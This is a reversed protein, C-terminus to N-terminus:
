VSSNKYSERAWSRAEDSSAWKIAQALIRRFNANQYAAPGDGLQLYVVPSNQYTKIWGVLNSGNPHDWDQNSNLEGRVVANAASYFNNCKFEWSSTFLPIISDEFVQSLYVEDIIEFPEVGHTIPHDMAPSVTHTVDIKYGSDTHDVGRSQMPTYLFQGGVIESWEPWAPWAAAAHHLIVLPCGADGMARVGQKYFEPPEFYQPGGVGFEIGPMDYHVYCDFHEAMQPNCMYQAAPHEVNSYQIDSNSDFVDFFRERDFPHGRTILLVNLKDGQQPLATTAPALVRHYDPVDDLDAM